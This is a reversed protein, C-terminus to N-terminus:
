VVHAIAMIDPEDAALLAPTWGLVEVVDKARVAKVPTRNVFKEWASAILSYHRHETNRLGRAKERLLQERLAHAADGEYDPVGTKFVRVFATPREDSGTLTCGIYHIAALLAPRAPHVGVVQAASEAVRPHLELLRILEAATPTAGLDHNAYIVMNRLTAAVMKANPVGYAIALNDGVARPRGRDLTAVDENTLGEVLFTSFSVGSKVCATLRHQGDVLAGSLHVRIADGNLRFNESLMDRVLVSVANKSISRNRPNNELLEAAWEPTMTVIRGQKTDTSLATSKKAARSHRNAVATM